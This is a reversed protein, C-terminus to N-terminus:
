NLLGKLKNKYLSYLQNRSENRHRHTVLKEDGNISSNPKSCYIVKTKKDVMFLTHKHFNNKSERDQKNDTIM